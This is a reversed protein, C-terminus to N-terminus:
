ARALQDEHEVGRARHAAEGDLLRLLRHLQRMSPRRWCSVNLRIVNEPSVCMRNGSGTCAVASFTRLACSNRRDREPDAAAGLHHLRNARREFPGVFGPVHAHDAEHRIAFHAVVHLDDGLHLPMRVRPDEGEADAARHIMEQEVLHRLVAAALHLVHSQVVVARGGRAAEVLADVARTSVSIAM